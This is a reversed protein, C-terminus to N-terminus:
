YEGEPIDALAVSTDTSKSLTLLSHARLLPTSTGESVVEQAFIARSPASAGQFPCSLTWAPRFCARMSSRLDLPPACIAPEPAASAGAAIDNHRPHAMLLAAGSGDVQSPLSNRTRLVPARKRRHELRKESSRGSAAM